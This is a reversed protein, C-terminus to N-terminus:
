AVGIGGRMGKWQRAQASGYAASIAAMRQAASQQRRRRQRRRGGGGSKGSIGSRRVCAMAAASINGARWALRRRWKRYPAVMKAAASSGGDRAAKAARLSHQAIYRRLFRALL